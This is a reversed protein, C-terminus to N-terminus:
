PATEAKPSVAPSTTASQKQESHGNPEAVSGNSNKDLSSADSSGNTKTENDPKSGSTPSLSPSSSTSETKISAQSSITSGIVDILDKYQDAHDNEKLKSILQQVQEGLESNQQRLQDVSSRLSDETQRKSAEQAELESVRSKILDNVLELESVRTRLSQVDSLSNATSSGASSSSSSSSPPSPGNGGNSTTSNNTGAAAAPASETHHALPAHYPGHLPRFHTYNRESPPQLPPLRNNELYPTAAAATSLQQLGPELLGSRCSDESKTKRSKTAGSSGSSRKRQPGPEHVKVRNRSKITDTKLYIPRPRGHLKLFLGCANCLVQGSDDRRWLPTTTTECNQCLQFANPNKAAAATASPAGSGNTASSPPSNNSSSDPASTLSHVGPLHPTPASTVLSPSSAM